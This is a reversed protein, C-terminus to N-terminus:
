AASVRVDAPRTVYSRGTPSTWTCVGDADLVLLWGAHHKFGHHTRCLCLLNDKSTPGDPFRVVHDLDCRQAAVSCGPFRCTRDRDRVRRALAAHPRYVSPDRAVTVGTLADARTVRLRIDPDSLIDVLTSSLIWGARPDRVGVTPPRWPGLRLRYRELMGAPLREWERRAVEQQQLVLLHVASEDPLGGLAPSGRPALESGIAHWPALAPGVVHELGDPDGGAPHSEATAPDTIPALPSAAPKPDAPSPDARTAGAPDSGGLPTAGGVVAHLGAGDTDTSTPVVLEVTTTVHASGLLLDAFADARAQDITRGPDARVYEHALEDIAAWAQMSVYSPLSATWWAMGPDAGPTVRVFRDAVAREARQEMSGEDILAATRECLRRLRAPTLEALGPVSTIAADFLPRAGVQVLQAVDVIVRSQRSDLLGELTMGRTRPLEDVLCLADAVRSEASRPTLRLLPAVSSAVIKVSSPRHESGDSWGGDLDSLDLEESRVGAALALDQMAALVNTARQTVALVAEAGAHDLSRLREPVIRAVVAAQATAPLADFVAAPVLTVAELAAGASVRSTEPATTASDM